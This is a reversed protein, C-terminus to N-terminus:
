NSERSQGGYKPLISNTDNTNVVVFKDTQKNIRLKFCSYCLYYLNRSNFSKM